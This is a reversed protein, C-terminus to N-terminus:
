MGNKQEKRQAQRELQKCSLCIGDRGVQRSFKNKGCKICEKNGVIEAIKSGCSPCFNLDSLAYRHSNFTKRCNSCKVDSWSDESFVCSSVEQIQKDAMNILPCDSRRCDEICYSKGLLLCNGNNTLSCDLCSEPMEKKIAIM